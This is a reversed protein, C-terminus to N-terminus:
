RSCNSNTGCLLRIRDFSKSICLGCIFDCVGIFIWQGCDRHENFPPSKKKWVQNYVFSINSIVSWAMNAQSEAIVKHIVSFDAECSTQPIQHIRASFVFIDVMYHTRKIWARITKMAKQINTTIIGDFLFDKEITGFSAAYNIGRLLIFLRCYSKNGQIVYTHFIGLLNFIKTYKKM